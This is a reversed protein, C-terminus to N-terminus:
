TPFLSTIRKDAFDDRKISILFINELVNQLEEINSLTQKKREGNMFYTSFLNNYLTFRKEPAARAVVLNEVFLTGPYTSFYFNYMEYDSAFKESLDFHYLSIWKEAIQTQLLYEDSINRIRFLGHPTTQEEQTDLLIPVTPVQSGFGTDVLYRRAGLIVTLIMHSQPPNAGEPEGMVVRAAHSIVKFGLLQLAEKLLTNHEYCYGGRKENIIKQTISSIDIKVPHKLYPSLSEFPITQTHQLTISKLTNLSPDKSGTYNIRQLYANLDLM